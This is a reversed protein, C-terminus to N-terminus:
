FLIKPELIFTPILFIFLNSIGVYKKHLLNAHLSYMNNYKNNSSQKIIFTGKDEFNNMFEAPFLESIDYM